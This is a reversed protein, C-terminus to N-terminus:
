ERGRAHCRGTSAFLTTWDSRCECERWEHFVPRTDSRAIPCDMREESALRRFSDLSSVLSFPSCNAYAADHRRSLKGGGVIFPDFGSFQEPCLIPTVWALTSRTRCQQIKISQLSRCSSYM